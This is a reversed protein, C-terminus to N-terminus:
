TTGQHIHEVSIWRLDRLPTHVILYKFSTQVFSSEVNLPKNIKRVKKKEYCSDACM